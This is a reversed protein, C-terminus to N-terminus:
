RSHKGARVGSVYVNSGLIPKALGLSLQDARKQEVVEFVIRNPKLGAKRFWRRLVRGTTVHMGHVDYSRPNAVHGRLRFRRSVRRLGCLNPVSAIACGEPTLLEVFTALFGVPDPVLHLVNSLLLCDFRENSLKERATKADGYVIEVGRAEACAAIVHDIPVAKVRVGKEILRKETAGWGCGVSLINQAGAPVLSLLENQCPEYYSKSFHEHYIGTESHFLKTRPKGNNGSNRLARVQRYVEEGSAIPWNGVSKNSLHPVLFDEFHSICMMKRFGCQTYPDTAATELPPYKGEHIPVLFGESAIARSLQEKTMAYCGSHEDTFYAFAYGGRSCMSAADWHYQNRVEPFYIEGDPSTETRLFGALENEPLVETVRLFADINRQTIPNDDETYVFLDYSNLREALVRKHAFVLSRPDRDPLGVVVEVNRGLNKFINTTVVVDVDHHMGRFEGLVRDLYQDNATGYNAIAALVKM